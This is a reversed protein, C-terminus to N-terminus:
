ASREIRQRSQGMLPHDVSLLSRPNSDIQVLTPDRPQVTPPAGEGSISLPKEGGIVKVRRIQVEKSM